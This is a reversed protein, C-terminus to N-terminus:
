GRFRPQHALAETNGVVMASKGLPLVPVYSVSWGFRTQRRFHIRVSKWILGQGQVIMCVDEFPIRESKIFDSIVYHEGDSEIRKWVVMGALAVLAHAAGLTLLLWPVDRSLLFQKAAAGFCTAAIIMALAVAFQPKLSSIRSLRKGRNPNAAADLRAPELGAVDCSTTDQNM